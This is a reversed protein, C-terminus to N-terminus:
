PKCLDKYDKDRSLFKEHDQKLIEYDCIEEAIKDLMMMVAENDINLHYFIWQANREDRVLGFERLKSLHKSVKPQSVDMIDCLECVCLEKNKLLMIVRLRTEDSLCKFTDLLRKM